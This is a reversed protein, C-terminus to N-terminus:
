LTEGGIKMNSKVSFNVALPPNVHSASASAHAAAVAHASATCCCLRGCRCRLGSVLLQQGLDFAVGGSQHLHAILVCQVRHFCDRCLGDRRVARLVVGETLSPQIGGSQCVLHGLNQIIHSEALGAAFCARVFQVM